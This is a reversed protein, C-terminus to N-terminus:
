ATSLARDGSTAARLRELAGYAAGSSIAGRAVEIGAGIDPALGAVYIAAGANLLVANRAGSKGGGTLVEEIVRVNDAVDGGALDAADDAKIGFAAPDVEFKRTAGDRLEVVHSTGLPSFEDMGPEGHVVLVHLAGLRALADAILSLRDPYSVGVVQRRVGAPNALPGIMNMVSTIGLERRIPIAHRMAPHMAPAFMFVMGAKALVEGLRAPPVDISVGLGALVDASGCKTTFSRNGHKAVRAGAGAAVFAAATSINFTATTGGGTGCTDILTDPDPADVRVMANRLATAAGAVEDPTEGKVRLGVLLAAIQVPTAEGRMVADFAQTAGEASLSKGDAIDRIAAALTDSM